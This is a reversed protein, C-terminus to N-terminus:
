VSTREGMAIERHCKWGLGAARPGRPLSVSPTQQARLSEPQLWGVLWASKETGWFARRHIDVDYVPVGIESFIFM